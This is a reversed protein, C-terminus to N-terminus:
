AQEGQGGSTAPVQRPEQALSDEVTKGGLAEDLQAKAIAYYPHKKLFPMAKEANEFNIKACMALQENM